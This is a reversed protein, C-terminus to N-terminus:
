IWSYLIFALLCSLASIGSFLKVVRTEKWGSLEFHHHLPAMKFFRKGRTIKFYIIQIVVSLSELWFILGFVLLLFQIELLISVGAIIAGLALSGTDGMFIKAPHINFFLFALLAAIVLICFTAISTNGQSLAIGTFLIFVPISVLTVLGDLGDTFNVGNTVALIFGVIFLTYLFPHPAIGLSQSFGIRLNGLLLYATLSAVVGIIIELSFKKRISLGGSKNTVRKDLDDYLGVLGYGTMAILPLLTGPMFLLAVVVLPILFMVGGMSPTGIKKFHSEPGDDRITQAIKLKTLRWTIGVGLIFTAAFVILSYALILGYNM